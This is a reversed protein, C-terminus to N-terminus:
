AGFLNLELDEGPTYYNGIHDPAGGFPHIGGWGDLTYGASSSGPLLWISRAIDWNPWYSGTILPPLQQSSPAFPQIGGWGDLVYGSHSNPLLVIDRAIDWGPWYSNRVSGNPVPSPRGIGFGHVGGWGDLVYGGSGDAFIVIKKAIDWGPWYANDTVAPPAPNGNVAFPHLGGWGDLVYGGTGNPMWAFDRAIDWGPWYAGGQVTVAPAGFSHLGGWGDMVLGNDPSNAGPQPHAVRAIEWNPWSPGGGGLPTSGDPHISGFADLTQLSKFPMQNPTVPLAALSDTGDADIATVTFTYSVGNTLGAFTAQGTGASVSQTIDGPQAVVRYGTVPTHCSRAPQWYITAAKDAAEAVVQLVMHPPSSLALADAQALSMYYTWDWYPGPDTHHDEGGYLGPNNPDPVQYHGIVHNRDMPVGYHSCISAALSASSQYMATTYWGPSNAYGEHEIGISRVNYDWNGAHWAIDREHVMQTVQGLDSVVYHASAGAGPSQFEQIASGYSGETDHIVIMDIADAYPRQDVSFNTYSVPTWTAGPYDSGTSLAPAAGLEPGLPQRPLVITEGATTTRREGTRLVAYVEAAVMSGQTAAVAPRWSDLSDGQAHRAALLAAGADLNAEIDTTLEARSHGSRAAAEDELSPLIHMPGIGGDLAPGPLPEWRSNVYTIAELLPLPVQRGSAAAQLAALYGAAAGGDQVTGLAISVAAAVALLTRHM